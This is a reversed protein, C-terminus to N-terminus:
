FFKIRLKLSRCHMDISVGGIAQLHWLKLLWCSRGDGLSVTGAAAANGPTLTGCLNCPACCGPPVAAAPAESTVSLACCATCSLWRSM